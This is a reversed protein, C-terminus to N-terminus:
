PKTVRQVALLDKTAREVSLEFQEHAVIGVGLDGLVREYQDRPRPRCHPTVDPPPDALWDLVILVGGRGLHEVLRALSVRWRADDVVHLLVDVVVIVDFRHLLNLTDLASVHFGAGPAAAKAQEIATASFDVGTVDFGLQLYTPTLLGIGCGADLLTKGQPNAVFRNIMAVIRDRKVHYQASNQEDSLAAHGVSKLSGRHTRHRREWYEELAFSEAASGVVLKRISQAVSVSYDEGPRTGRNLSNGRRMGESGSEAM